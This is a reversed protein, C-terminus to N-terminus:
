FGELQKKLDAKHQAMIRGMDRQMKEETCIVLM